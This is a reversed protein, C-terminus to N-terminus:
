NANSISPWYPVAFLVAVTTYVTTGEEGGINDQMLLSLDGKIYIYINKKTLNLFKEEILFIDVSRFCM